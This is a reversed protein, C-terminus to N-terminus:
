RGPIYRQQLSQLKAYWHAESAYTDHARPARRLYEDLDGQSWGMKKLFYDIDADLDDPDPYPSHQLLESAYDRTMQGSCILSSFHLRRKDIGFKKPLLYGQYFRTFISEYHKYPYPRYGLEKVLLDICSQKNYDIYDLFPVWKTGRLLRHYVFGAVGITPLSRVRTKNRRAIAFINKRDYKNWNYNRPVRMGETTTNSGSLIYKIGYRKALGYNVALMANDYLLEVDIVDADFFAQQLARYERWEVVHTYLDVGLKRVLNEINNVALESNWGNDMHVALPRLGHKKALYLAYASDAGGSIGVICDYQKGAGERKVADIFQQLKAELVDPSAPQYAALKALMNTCYNCNGDADFVVDAANADILCRKCEQIQTTM